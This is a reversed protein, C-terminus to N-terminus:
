VTGVEDDSSVFGAEKLASKLRVVFCQAITVDPLLPSTVVAAGTNTLKDQFFGDALLVSLLVVPKEGAQEVVHAVNPQAGACYAVTVSVGLLGELQGALEAVQQQGIELRTGAAALVVQPNNELHPRARLALVQALEPLPGLPRAAVTNERSAVAQAIDHTTHVGDSVLLPLVVAPEGAPLNAVVQDLSPEQVDVYAEHWRLQPLVEGSMQELQERLQHILQQGTTSDTGHSTALVHVVSPTSTSM